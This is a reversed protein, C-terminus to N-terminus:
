SGRRPARKHLDFFPFYGCSAECAFAKGKPTLAQLGKGNLLRSAHMEFGQKVEFLPIEKDMKQGACVAAEWRFPSFCGAYAM